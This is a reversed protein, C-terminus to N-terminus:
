LKCEDTELDRIISDRELDVRLIGEKNSSIIYVPLNIRFKKSSIEKLEELFEDKLKISGEDSEIKDKANKWDVFESLDQEMAKRVIKMDNVKLWNQDVGERMKLSVNFEKDYGLEILGLNGQSKAYKM